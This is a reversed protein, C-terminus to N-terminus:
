YLVTVNLIVNKLICVAHPGVTEKSVILFFVLKGNASNDHSM